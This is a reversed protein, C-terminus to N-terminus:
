VPSAQSPYLRINAHLSASYFVTHWLSHFYRVAYNKEDLTEASKVLLFRYLFNTPLNQGRDKNKFRSTMGSM